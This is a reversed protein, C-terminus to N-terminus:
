ACHIKWKRGCHEFSGVDLCSRTSQSRIYESAIGGLAPDDMTIFELSAQYVELKEHDLSTHM